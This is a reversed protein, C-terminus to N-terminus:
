HQNCLSKCVTAMMQNMQSMVKEMMQNTQSMAKEMMKEFMAEMRGMITEMLNDFNAQTHPIAHTEDTAQKVANAFSVNPTVKSSSVTYHARPASALKPALM